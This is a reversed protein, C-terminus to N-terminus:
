KAQGKEDNDEKYKYIYINVKNFSAVNFVIAEELDSKRKVFSNKEM